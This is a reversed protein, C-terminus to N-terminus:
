GERTYFLYTAEGDVGLNVSVVQWGKSGILNLHDILTLNTSERLDKDRLTIQNYEFKSM